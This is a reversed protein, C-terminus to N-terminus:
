SKDDILHIFRVGDMNSFIVEMYESQGTRAFQHMYRITEQRSTRISRICYIGSLLLWSRYLIYSTLIKKRFSLRRFWEM